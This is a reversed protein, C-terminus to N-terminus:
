FKPRMISGYVGPSMTYRAIESRTYYTNEYYSVPQKPKPAAPHLPQRLSQELMSTGGSTKTGYTYGVKNNPKIDSAHKKFFATVVDISESSTEVITKLSKNSQVIEILETEIKDSLKSSLKSSLKPSLKTAAKGVVKVGPICCLLEFLGGLINGASFCVVANIVSCIIGVPGPVFSLFQSAMLSLSVASKGLKQAPAVLDSAECGKKLLPVVETELIHIINDWEKFIKCEATIELIKPQAKSVALETRGETKLLKLLKTLDIPPLKM